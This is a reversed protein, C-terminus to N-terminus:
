VASWHLSEQYASQTGHRQRLKEKDCTCKLDPLFFFSWVLIFGTHRLNIATHNEYVAPGNPM